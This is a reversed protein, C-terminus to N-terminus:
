NHPDTYLNKIATSLANSKNDTRLSKFVIPRLEPIAVLDKFIAPFLLPESSKVLQEFYLMLRGLSNLVPWCRAALVILCDNNLQSNALITFLFSDVTPQGVSSALARLLLAKTQDQVGDDLSQYQIILQEAIPKPLAVNELATALPELVEAPLHVLANVLDCNLDNSSNSLRVSLDTIGQLGIAQWNQWCGSSLYDIFPQYYQSPPKKLQLSLLSNIMASKAPAPTFIYPNKKLLETQQANPARTLDSGLAEIIIAIFHNRAGQNLLGREDLPLKIFWLYQQNPDNQWFAVTFRAEGQIPCPYAIQNQEVQSFTDNAILSIKRGLDYIYYQCKSLQLLESISNITSM